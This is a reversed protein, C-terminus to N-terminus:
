WTSPSCTHMTKDPKMPVLGLAECAHNPLSEAMHAGDRLSPKNQLDFYIIYKAGNSKHRTCVTSGVIARRNRIKWRSETVHLWM